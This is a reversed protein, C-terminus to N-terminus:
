DTTDYHVSLAGAVAEEFSVTKAEPKFYDVIKTVGTKIGGLISSPVAALYSPINLFRQKWILKKVKKWNAETPDEGYAFEAADLKLSTQKLARSWKVAVTISIVVAAVAAAGIAVAKITSLATSVMNEDSQIYWSPVYNYQRHKYSVYRNSEHDRYIKYREINYLPLSSLSLSIFEDAVVSIAVTSKDTRKTYNYQTNPLASRGTVGLWYHTHTMREEVTTLDYYTQNVSYYALEFDNYGSCAYSYLVENTVDSNVVYDVTDSTGQIYDRYPFVHAWLFASNIRSSWYATGTGNTTYLGEVSTACEVADIFKAWLLGLKYNVNTTDFPNDMYLSYNYAYANALLQQLKVYSLIYLQEESRAGQNLFIQNAYLGRTNIYVPSYTYGDKRNPILQVYLDNMALPDMIKYNTEINLYGDAIWYKHIAGLTNVVYPNSETADAIYSSNVSDAALPMIYTGSDGIPYRQICACGYITQDGANTLRTVSKAEGFLTLFLSRAGKSIAYPGFVNLMYAACHMLGLFGTGSGNAYSETEALTEEDNALIGEAYDTVIELKGTNAARFISAGSYTVLTEAEDMNSQKNFGFFSLVSTIVSALNSSEIKNQVTAMINTFWSKFQDWYQTADTFLNEMYSTMATVSEYSYDAITTIADMVKSCLDTVTESEVFQNWLEKVNVSRLDSVVGKVYTVVELDNFWDSIDGSKIADILDSITTYRIDAASEAKKQSWWSEFYDDLSEDDWEIPLYASSPDINFQKYFAQKLKDKDVEGEENTYYDVIMNLWETYTGLKDANETFDAVLGSIDSNNLNDYM